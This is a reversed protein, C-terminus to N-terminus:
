RQEAHQGGLCQIVKNLDRSSPDVGISHTLAGQLGAYLSSAAAIYGGLQTALQGNDRSPFQMIGCLGMEMTNLHKEIESLDATNNAVLIGMSSLAASVHQSLNGAEFTYRAAAAEISGVYWERPSVRSGLAGTSKLDNVRQDFTDDTLTSRDLLLDFIDSGHASVSWVLLGCSYVDTQKAAHKSIPGSSIEPAEWQKTGGLQIMQPATALVQSYGYDGLRAVFGHDKDPFVLVNDPKVDGHVIGCDHLAQLGLCVDRALKQRTVTSLYQQRQLTALSGLEAFEQILVPTKHLINFPNTAWALGLISLLNPHNRIPEHSSLFLEMMASRAALSTSRTSRGNEDFEILAAKYALCQPIEYEQSFNISGSWGGLRSEYDKITQRAIKRKYVIFTAGRGSFASTDVAAPRLFQPPIFKNSSPQAQFSQHLFDLADLVFGDYPKPPPPYAGLGDSNLTSSYTTIPRGSDSM